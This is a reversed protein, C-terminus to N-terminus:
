IIMERETIIYVVTIVTWDFADLDRTKGMIYSKVTKKYLIGVGVAYMRNYCGCMSLRSASVSGRRWLITKVLNVTKFINTLINM